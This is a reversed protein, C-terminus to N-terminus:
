AKPGPPHRPPAARLRRELKRGALGRQAPDLWAPAQAELGLWATPPPQERAPRAAPRAPDAPLDRARGHPPLRAGRSRPRRPALGVDGVRQARRADAYGDSRM